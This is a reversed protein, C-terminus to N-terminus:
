GDTRVHLMSLFSAYVGGYMVNDSIEICVADIVIKLFNFVRM